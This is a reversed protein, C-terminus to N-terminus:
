EDIHEEDPNYDIRELEEEPGGNCLDNGM